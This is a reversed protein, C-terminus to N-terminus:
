HQKFKSKNRESSLGFHNELFEALENPVVVLHVDVIVWGVVDVVVEILQDVVVGVQDLGLM